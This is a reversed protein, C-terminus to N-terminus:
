EFYESCAYKDHEGGYKQSFAHGCDMKFGLTSCDEALWHDVLDIYNINPDSFKNLWKVSFDYIQKKDSM